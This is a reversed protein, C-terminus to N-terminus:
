EIKKLRNFVVLDEEVIKKKMKRKIRKRRQNSSRKQNEVLLKLSTKKKIDKQVFNKRWSIDRTKKSNRMQLVLGNVSQENLTM